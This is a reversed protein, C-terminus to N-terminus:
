AKVTRGGPLNVLREPTRLGPRVVPVVIESVLVNEVNPKGIEHTDISVDNYTSSVFSLEEPVCSM